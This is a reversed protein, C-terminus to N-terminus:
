QQSVPERKSMLVEIKKIIDRIPVGKVLSVDVFPKMTEWDAEVGSVMMIPLTPDRHKLRIALEFGTMGPMDYDLVAADIRPSREHADLAEFGDAASVVEFGHAGFLNEYLKLIGEADDVCLVTPGRM